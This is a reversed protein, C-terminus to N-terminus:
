FAGVYLGAFLLAEEALKVVGGGGPVTFAAYDDFGFVGMQSGVGAEDEGGKFTVRLLEVIFDIAGSTVHLVPDLLLLEIEVGVPRAAMVPPGIM